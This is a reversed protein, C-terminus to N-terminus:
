KAPGGTWYLALYWIAHRAGSISHGASFLLNFSDSFKVSGGINAVTFDREDRSSAGQHFLEGGLTLYKGIDRQLFWGAYGYNQQGPVSNLAEGGGGYTTWPGWSKQVWIPVKYWTRGNGLGKSANGTALEALPFIAIQPTSDTEDVFRYKIGTETDGYGSTWGSGASSSHALPSVLHFQVNPAVGYNLEVAPGSIADANTSEDGQGFVYVEWHHYDVPEPDDTLFPPGASLTMPIALALLIFALGRRRGSSSRPDAHLEMKM